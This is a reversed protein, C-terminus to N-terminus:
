GAEDAVIRREEAKSARQAGFREILAKLEPEDVADVAEALTHWRRTREGSERWSDGEFKVKLPFVEVVCPVLEGGPARKLYPYAGFPRKAVDGKVGAEELAERAAAGSPTCRKMPWGKPLVWRRTERSTVLLIELDGKRRYPLAGYQLRPEVAAQAADDDAQQL